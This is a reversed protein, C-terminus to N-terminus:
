KEADSIAMIALLRLIARVGNSDVDKIINDVDQMLDKRIDTSQNEYIKDCYKLFSQM